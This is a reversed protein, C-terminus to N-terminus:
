APSVEAPSCSEEKGMRNNSGERQKMAQNLDPLWKMFYDKVTSDEKLLKRVAGQYNEPKDFGLSKAICRFAGTKTVPYRNVLGDTDKDSVLQDFKEKEKTLSDSADYPVCSAPTDSLSKWTPCNDLIDKKVQKEILMEYLRRSDNKSVEDEICKKAQELARRVEEPSLGSCKEAVEQMINAYYYLSEVSYSDLVHIGNELLQKVEDKQRNDRDILGYAEVQLQQSSRIGKVVKIVEGCGGCPTVSFEPYLIRYTERDISDADGEVFLIKRRKGLIARKTDDSIDTSKGIKDWDWEKLETGEWICSRLLITTAEPIDLPLELDHTSIVFICDEREKFLSLLLPSAISRHLHREPEDILILTGEKAALVDAALLVVNREGDSLETISYESSGNKSALLKRKEGLTIEIPINASKLLVNLRTIPEVEEMQKEMESTNKSRLAVSDKAQNALQEEILELLILNVQQHGLGGRSYRSRSQPNANENAIERGLSEIYTPLVSSADSQLWTQRYAVIKKAHGHNDLYLKHILGSKGSGNPGVIFVVEGAKVRIEQNTDDQKAISADPVVAKPIILKIEAPKEGM